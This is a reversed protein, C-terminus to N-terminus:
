FSDFWRGWGRGRGEDGEAGAFKKEEVEWKERTLTERAALARVFRWAETDALNWAEVADKMRMDMDIGKKRKKKLIARANDLIGTQIKAEKESPRQNRPIIDTTNVFPLAFGFHWELDRHEPVPPDETMWLGHEWGWESAVTKKFSVIRAPGSIEHGLTVETIAELWRDRNTERRIHRISVDNSPALLATLTYPHPVTAITYQNSTNYFSSPMAIPIRNSSSCPTCSPRNPPCSSPLPSDPCTALSHALALAPQSLTLTYGPYPTLIAFGTAFTNLFTLHLHSSILEALWQLGAPKDDALKVSVSKYTEGLVNGEYFAISSPNSDIRFTKVPFQDTISKSKHFNESALSAKLAKRISDKSGSYLGGGLGEYRTLDPYEGRRLFSLLADDRPGMPLVLWNALIGGEMQEWALWRMLDTLLKAELRSPQVRQYLENNMAEAKGLIVPRFGQAWWARRWILLLKNEAARTADDTVASTDYFAYIPPRNQLPPLVSKDDSTITDSFPNLWKWHSFWKAEGSGERAPISPQHAAPGFSKSIKKKAEKATTPSSATLAFIITVLLLTLAAYRIWKWPAPENKPYADSVSSKRYRVPMARIM